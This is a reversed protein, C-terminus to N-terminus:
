RRAAGAAEAAAGTGGGGGGGGAAEAAARLRLEPLFADQAAAGGGGGGPAAGLQQLVLEATAPALSLGSGEHGAAVFVGDLGPVPGIAPLGGLAYPRLGVRVSAGGGPGGGAARAADLLAPSLAPAFGHARRMIATMVASDPAAHWGSFERSSGILLTGSASTTATFTIDVRAADEEADCGSSSSGGGGTPAGPACEAPGARATEAAEAAEEAAARSAEAPAYHRTYSLEMVGRRIPPMGEPRAIELLHGRRPALLSRWRADGSAAALLHGSWVGSAVVVGRRSRVRRGSETVVVAGAGAAGPELAVVGEHLLVRCRGTAAGLRQCEDLLAFAAARGSIQADSEVLLGAASAPLGLAPEERLVADRALLRVGEVGNAQLMTARAELQTMEAGTTALLLSGTTQWQMAEALEPNDAVFREWAGRSRVALDWLPSEPSRHAMWIYGQGAGTAGACPQQRDILAVSLPTDQLLQHAICLGIVGAGVVVVDAEFSGGDAGGPAARSPLAAGRRRRGRRAAAAARAVACPSRAGGASAGNCCGRLSGALM